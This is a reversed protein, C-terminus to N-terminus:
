TSEEMFVTTEGDCKAIAIEANFKEACGIRIGPASKIGFIIYGGRNNAFAAFDTLM